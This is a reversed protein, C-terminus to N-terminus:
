ATCIFETAGRRPWVAVHHRQQKGNQERQWWKSTGKAECDLPFARMFIIIVEMIISIWPHNRDEGKRSGFSWSCDRKAGSFHSQSMGGVM